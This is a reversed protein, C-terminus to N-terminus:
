NDPVNSYLSSSNLSVNGWKDLLTACVRSIEQSKIRRFKERERKQVLNAVSVEKTM